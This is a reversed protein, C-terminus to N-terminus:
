RRPAAVFLVLVAAAIMLTVNFGYVLAAQRPWDTKAALRYFNDQPWWAVLLWTIALQALTTLWAPRGLRALFTRGFVLFMVGLGFSVYEAAYLGRFFGAWPQPVGTLDTSYPWLVDTLGFAVMGAVVAVMARFPAMSVADGGWGAKGGASRRPGPRVPLPLSEHEVEGEPTRPLVPVVAVLDPVQREPLRERLFSALEEGRTGGRAVVYAILTAGDRLVACDAVEPHARLEREIVSLRDPM